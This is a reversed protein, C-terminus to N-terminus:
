KKVRTCSKEVETSMATTNKQSTYKQTTGTDPIAIPNPRYHKM